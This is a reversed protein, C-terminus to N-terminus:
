FIITPASIKRRATRGVTQRTPPIAPSSALDAKENKRGDRSWGRKRGAERVSLGGELFSVGIVIVGGGGERM